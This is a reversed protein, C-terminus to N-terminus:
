PRGGCSPGGLRAMAPGLRIVALGAVALLAVPLLAVALLLTIPLGARTGRLGTM